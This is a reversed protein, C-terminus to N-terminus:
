PLVAIYFAQDVYSNSSNVMAVYADSSTNPGHICTVAAPGASSGGCPATVGNFLADSSEHPTIIIAKGDVTAPFALYYGGTFPHSVVSIGGSSELVSGSATVYAWMARPEYGRAAIGGLEASNTANSANTANAAQTANTASVASPVTLGTTNIKAANVAGKAIKSNTVARNKLQKTGVSNKPLTLAAYSTGGMAMVLAVIAVAMSASPRRLAFKM